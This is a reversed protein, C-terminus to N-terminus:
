WIERNHMLQFINQLNYIYKKNMAWFFKCFKVLQNIKKVGFAILQQLIHFGMPVVHKKWCFFFTSYWKNMTSIYTSFIFISEINLFKFSIQSTSNMKPSGQIIVNNSNTCVKILIAYPCYTKIHTLTLTIISVVKVHCISNMWISTWGHNM